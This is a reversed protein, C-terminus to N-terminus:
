EHTSTVSTALRAATEIATETEALDGAMHLLHGLVAHRRHDNSVQADAAGGRRSDCAPAVASHWERPSRTIRHWLRM